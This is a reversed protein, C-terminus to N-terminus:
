RRYCSFVQFEACSCVGRELSVISETRLCRSTPRDLPKDAGGRIVCTTVIYESINIGYTNRSIYIKLTIPLRDGNNYSLFSKLLVSTCRGTRLSFHVFLKQHSFTLKDFSNRSTFSSLLLNNKFILTHPRSPTLTYELNM